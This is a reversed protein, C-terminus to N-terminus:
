NQTIYMRIHDM